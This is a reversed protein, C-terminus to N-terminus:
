NCALHSKIPPDRPEALTRRRRLPVLQNIEQHLEGAFRSLIKGILASHYCLQSTKSPLKKLIGEFPRHFHSFNPLIGWPFLVFYM